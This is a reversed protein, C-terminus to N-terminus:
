GVVGHQAGAVAGQGGYAFFFLVVREEWFELGVSDAVPRRQLVFYRRGDVSAPKPPGDLRVSWCGSLHHAGRAALRQQGYRWWCWGGHLMLCPADAGSSRLGLVPSLPRGVPAVTTLCRVDGWPLGPAARLLALRRVAFVPALQLNGPSGAEVGAVESRRSRALKIASQVGGKWL